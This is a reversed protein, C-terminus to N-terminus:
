HGFQSMGHAGIIFYLPILAAFGALANAVAFFTALPTKLKALRVSAAFCLLPASVFLLMLLIGRPMSAGIGILEFIYFLGWPMLPMWLFTLGTVWSLKKQQVVTMAFNASRKLESM